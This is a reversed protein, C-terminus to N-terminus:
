LKPLKPKQPPGLVSLGRLIPSQLSLPSNAAYNQITPTQYPGAGAELVSAAKARRKMYDARAQKSTRAATFGIAKTPEKAM